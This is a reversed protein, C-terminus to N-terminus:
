NVGLSTPFLPDKPSEKILAYEGKGCREVLGKRILDGLIRHLQSKSLKGIGILEEYTFVSGVPMALVFSRVRTGPDPILSPGAPLLEGKENFEYEHCETKGQRPLIMLRRRSSTREETDVPLLVLFADAFGGFAVSGLAKERPRLYDEGEKTKATHSIGILTIHLRKCLRNLDKLWGAVANYDNIKGGPLLSVFGDIFLVEVKPDLTRAKAVISELNNLKDDVDSFMLFADHPISLDDLTRKVSDLSRDCSVYAFPYPHCAHGHFPKGAAWDRMFQFSFRTKGSGSPGIIFHVEEAPFIKDVLFKQHTKSM